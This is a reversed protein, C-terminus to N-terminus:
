KMKLTVEVGSNLNGSRFQLIMPRDFALEEGGRVLRSEMKKAAPMTAEAFNIWVPASVLVQYAGVPIGMWQTWCDAPATFKISRVGSPFPTNYGGSEGCREVVQIAAKSSPASSNSAPSSIINKQAVRVASGADQQVKDLGGLFLIVTAIVAAIAIGFALRGAWKSWELLPTATSNIVLVFAVALAYIVLSVKRDANMPVVYCYIWTLLELGYVVMAFRLLRRATNIAPHRPAIAIIALLTPSALLGAVLSGVLLVLLLWLLPEAPAAAFIMVMIIWAIHVGILLRGWFDGTEWLDQGLEVVSLFTKM